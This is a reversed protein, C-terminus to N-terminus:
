WVVMENWLCFFQPLVWMHVLSLAFTWVQPTPLPLLVLLTLSKCSGRASPLCFSVWVTEMWDFPLCVFLFGQVLHTASFAPLWLKLCGVRSLVKKERFVTCGVSCPSHWQKWADRSYHVWLLGWIFLRNRSFANLATPMPLKLKMINGRFHKKVLIFAFAVINSWETVM